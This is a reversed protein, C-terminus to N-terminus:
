YIRKLRHYVIDYLLLVLDGMRGLPVMEGMGVLVVELIQNVMRQEVLVMAALTEPTIALIGMIWVMEVVV